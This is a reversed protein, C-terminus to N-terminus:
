AHDPPANSIRTLAGQALLRELFGIVDREAEGVEVDFEQCISRIIDDVSRSGDVLGWIRAGVENLVKARGQEAVVILAEQDILRGVVSKAPELITDLTITNATSDDKAM